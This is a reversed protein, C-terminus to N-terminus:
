EGTQSDRQDPVTDLDARLVAASDPFLDHNLPVGTLFRHRDVASRLSAAKRLVVARARQVLADAEQTRGVARLVAAADRYVEETRLAPM